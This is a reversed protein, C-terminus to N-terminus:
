DISLENNQSLIYDTARECVGCTRYYVFVREGNLNLSLRMPAGLTHEEPKGMTLRCLSCIIAHTEPTSVTIVESHPCVLETDETEDEGNEEPNKLYKSIYEKGEKLKLLEDVDSHEVNGKEDSGSVNGCSFLSFLLVAALFFTLLIKKKM